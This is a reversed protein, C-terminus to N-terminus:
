SQNRSFGFVFALFHCPGRKAQIALRFAQLFQNLGYNFIGCLSLGLECINLVTKFGQFGLLTRCLLSQILKLRYLGTPFREQGLNFNQFLPQAFGISLDCFDFALNSPIFTEQRSLLVEGIQRFSTGGKSSADFTEM